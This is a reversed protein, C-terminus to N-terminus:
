RFLGHCLMECGSCVQVHDPDYSKDARLVITGDYGVREADTELVAVINAQRPVLTIWTYKRHELDSQAVVM